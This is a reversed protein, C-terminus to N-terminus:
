DTASKNIKGNSNDAPISLYTRLISLPTTFRLNWYRTRTGNMWGSHGTWIQHRSMGDSLEKVAYGIDFSSLFNETERGFAQKALM